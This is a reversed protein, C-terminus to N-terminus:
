RGRPGGVVVDGGAWARLDDSRPPASRRAIEVGHRFLVFTTADGVHYAVAAAPERRTDVRLYLLGGPCGAPLEDLAPDEGFAVLV